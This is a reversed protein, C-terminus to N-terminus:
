FDSPFSNEVLTRYGALNDSLCSPLICANESLMLNFFNGGM